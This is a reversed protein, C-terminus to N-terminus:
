MESQNSQKGLKLKLLLIKRRLLRRLWVWGLGLPQNGRQWQIDEAGLPVAQM